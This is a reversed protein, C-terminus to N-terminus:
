AVREFVIYADTQKVTRYYQCQFTLAHLLTNFLSSSLHIKKPHLVVDWKDFHRNEHIKLRDFADHM